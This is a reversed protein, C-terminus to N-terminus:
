DDVVRWIYWSAITRFPKWKESLKSMEKKSLEKRFLKEMGKRIGSDDLPFIDPRALAFMLFMKATWRGIGKVKTLEDIIQADSLKNLNLIDLDREKTNKALNKIYAVKSWSMGANRLESEKARLVSEPTITKGNTLLTKVRTFITKAAKGSLQQGIISSVLDEFYYFRSIKRIKCPGFKIILKKLKQDRALHKEAISKM